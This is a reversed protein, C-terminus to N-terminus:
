PGGPSRDTSATSRCGSSGRSPGSGGPGSSGCAARTGIEAVVRSASRASRRRASSGTWQRSRPTGPVAARRGPERGYAGDVTVGLKRQVPRVWWAWIIRPGAEERRVRARCRPQARGRRRRRARGSRSRACRKGLRRASSATRRSGSSGSSRGVHPAEAASTSFSSSRAARRARGPSQDRARRPRRPLRAAVALAVGAKRAQPLKLRNAYAQGPRPPAADLLEWLEHETLDRGQWAWGPVADDPTLRDLFALSDLASTRAM